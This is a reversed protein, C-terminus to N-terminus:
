GHMLELLKTVTSWNRATAPTDLQAELWGATLKSRGSGNPFHVFVERGDVHFTDSPSRDPDLAAVAAKKPRDALFFVHVKAPDDEVDAFPNRTTVQELQARTRLLVRAEVGLDAAVAEEIVDAVQGARRESTSFVVNGSQLYTQIDHHGLDEFLDRLPGMPVKNRGGVNVARLLAVYITLSSGGHGPM